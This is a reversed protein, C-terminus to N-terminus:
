DCDLGKEDQKIGKVYDDYPLFRDAFWVKPVFFSRGNLSSLPGADTVFDFRIRYSYLAQHVFGKKRDKANTGYKGDGVLPHGLYALHARIQHTRGTLLEIELLSMGEKVALVRYRTVIKKAGPYQQATITVLNKQENKILYATLTDSNKEMHGHVLCLYYKSIERDKLKQNLVRLAQANKAAIVIGGTNRDIRNVLAPAFSHENAPDYEGKEFLYRKMRDVLTDTFQRDDSHVLVGEKKDLLLLNEDEYVIDLKKSATMFSHRAEKQVFFEDSIYFDLQDGEKLRASYETRKGNVKIHKTRIFRYMLSPPLAPLAKSLFKDLRQGADNPQITISRM